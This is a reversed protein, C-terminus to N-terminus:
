LIWNIGFGINTSSDTNRGSIKKSFTFDMASARTLWYDGTINIFQYEEKVSSFPPKGNRENMLNNFGTSGIDVGGYTILQGFLLGISSKKMQYRYGFDFYFQNGQIKDPRYTYKIMNILLSNELKIGNNIGFEYNSNGNNLALFTDPTKNSGPSRVGYFADISYSDTEYIEQTFKFGVEQLGSNTDGNKADGMQGSLMKYDAYAIRTDIQLNKFGLSYSIGTSILQTEGNKEYDTLQTGMWLAKASTISTDIRLLTLGEPLLSATAPSGISFLLIKIFINITKM